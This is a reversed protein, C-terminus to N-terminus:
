IAKIAFAKKIAETPAFLRVSWLWFAAQISITKLDAKNPLQSTVHARLSPATHIAAAFCSM